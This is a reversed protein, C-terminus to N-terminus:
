FHTKSDTGIACSVELRSVPLFCHIISDLTIKTRQTRYTNLKKRAHDLVNSKDTKKKEETVVNFHQWRMYTMPKRVRFEDNVWHTKLPTPLSLADHKMQALLQPLSSQHVRTHFIFVHFHITAPRATTFLSIGYFLFRLPQWVVFSQLRNYGKLM